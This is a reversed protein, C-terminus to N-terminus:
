KSIIIQKEQNVQVDGANQTFLQLNKEKESKAALIANVRDWDQQAGDKDNLLSKAIARSNLITSEYPLYKLAKDYYKLAKEPNNLSILAKNGKDYLATAQEKFVNENTGNNYGDIQFVMSIEREMEVPNGNKLGPEWMGQTTKLVRIVEDDIEPCVSNLVKINTVEGSATVTFQVVETGQIKYKLAVEPYEVKERLYSYILYPSKGTFETDNMMNWAFVPLANQEDANKVSEDPKSTTNNDGFASTAVLLGIAIFLKTKMM